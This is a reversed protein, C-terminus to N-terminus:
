RLTGAGPNSVAVDDNVGVHLVVGDAGVAILEGASTAWADYLDVDRGLDISRWSVGGDDTRLITRGAGALAAHAGDHSLPEVRAGALTAVPAATGATVDHRWATGREDLALARAGGHAAAVAQWTTAPDVPVRVWSTGSDPSMMLLSDGGAYVTDGAAAVSRLTRTTVPSPHFRMSRASRSRPAAAPFTRSFTVQM